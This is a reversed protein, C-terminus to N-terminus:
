EVFDAEVHFIVSVCVRFVKCFIVILGGSVGVYHSRSPFQTLVPSSNRKEGVLERDYGALVRGFSDWVVGVRGPGVVHVRFLELYACRVLWPIRDWFGVPLM